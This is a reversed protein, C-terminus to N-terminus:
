WVFVFNLDNVNTGSPGSVLLGGARAFFNAADHGALFPIPDVDRTSEGTAIAGAAESNGDDGDTALCVVAANPTGALAIVAALAAEVNRGGRGAPGSLTVTSEGGLILACPGRGWTAQDHRLQAVFGGLAAGVEVAEGEAGNTVVVAEMGAARVVDAAAASAVENAGVLVNHVRDLPGTPAPTDLAALIEPSLDAALGYRDIIARAAVPADGSLVTPGSAIDGLPNGIVDSLVLSVVRAPSALAALGGGKLADLRRRVTNIERISAGCGLLLETVRRLGELGVGDVPRTLLASGGGSILCLVLDRPGASRVLEAIRRGAAVGQPDPVPHGATCVEIRAPGALAAGHKTVVLGGGLREDLISEVAAAMPVAAKGAGVVLIREFDDLNLSVPPLDGLAPHSRVQLRGGERRVCRAVLRGPAVADLAAECAPLVVGHLREDTLGPCHQPSTFKSM